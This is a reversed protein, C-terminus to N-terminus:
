QSSFKKNTELYPAGSMKFYVVNEPFRTIYNFVKFTAADNKDISLEIILDKIKDREDRFSYTDFRQLV